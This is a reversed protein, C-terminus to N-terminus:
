RSYYAMEKGLPKTLKRADIVLNVTNKLIKQTDHGGLLQKSEKLPETM